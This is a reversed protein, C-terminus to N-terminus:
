KLYVDDYWPVSFAGPHVLIHASEGPEAADFTRTNVTVSVPIGEHNLPVTLDVFPGGSESGGEDKGVVQATIATPPNGDLLGNLM